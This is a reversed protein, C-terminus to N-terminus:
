SFWHIGGRPDFLFHRSDTRTVHLNTLEVNGIRSEVGFAFERKVFHSMPSKRALIGVGSHLEDDPAAEVVKLAEVPIKM